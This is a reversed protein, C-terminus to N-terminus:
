PACLFHCFLTALCSLFFKGGPEDSGSDVMVRRYLSRITVEAVHGLMLRKEGVVDM